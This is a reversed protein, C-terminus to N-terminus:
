GFVDGVKVIRNPHNLDNQNPSNNYLRLSDQYSKLRPDSKSTVTVTPLQKPEEQKKTKIKAM